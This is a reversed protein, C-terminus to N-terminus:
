RSHNSDRGSSLKALLAENLGAGDVVTFRGASPNDTGTQASEVVGALAKEPSHGIRAAAKGTEAAEVLMTGIDDDIGGAEGVLRGNFKLVTAPATVWDAVPATLPSASNGPEISQTKNLPASPQIPLRKWWQEDALNAHPLAAPVALGEWESILAEDTTPEVFFTNLNDQYFFPLTRLRFEQIPDDLLDNCTALAFRNGPLDSNTGELGKNLITEAVPNGSRKLPAAGGYRSASRFIQDYPIDIRDYRGTSIEPDSNKSVVKFTYRRQDADTLNINVAHEFGATDYEKSVDVFLQTPTVGVLLPKAASSSQRPTWEGQFYESWNLRAENTYRAVGATTSLLKNFTFESIKDDGPGSVRDAPNSKEIFTVWFLHLRKRWIVPVVHDGEIDVTIPEWPTWMGSAYRRHFYKHPSGFTRGIAHFISSSPNPKEECMAVIDLRAISELEKLYTFLADAVTDDNIDSQLLASELGQFMRTKDDRFEPELWNEPYLFIKRAAEWVRYRKMWAWQDSDIVSPPVDSELNLLCRQVFTQISSIALVIRSTQVVPEMGGDLLFYEFLQEISDFGRATMVYATLADRKRRRLADFIPQAIRLWNEPEYSAKVANRFDQAIDFRSKAPSDTVITTAESITEVPIGLQATVLLGDWLRLVGKENMFAPVTVILATGNDTATATFGLRNAMAKVTAADRRTRDAIRGCVDDFVAAKSSASDAARPYSRRSRSFVDILDDTSGATDKKLRAYSALRLFCTFLKRATSDDAHTTPLESFSLDDFDAPNASFYEIERQSLGFAGTLRLVKKLLALAQQVRDASSSPYRTLRAVSGKPLREGQVLLSFNGKTLGAVDVSIAYPVGAKLEIHASSELNTALAKGSLLADPSDGIRVEFALGAATSVAFFNYTGAAPVEIYGSFHASDAGHPKAPSGDPALAATNADAVTIVTPSADFSVSLGTNGGSTFADLLAAGTVSPDTLVRTLLTELLRPDGGVNAAVTQIVSRAILKQQLGPIFATILKARKARIIDRVASDGLGSPVPSFILNFDDATLFGTAAGGRVSKLLHDNFFSLVKSRIDDILGGFLTSTHAAKLDRVQEDLLVGRFSLRQVSAAYGVRIESDSAFELPDLRDAEAVGQRSAQYEITGALMSMFTDALDGTMLQALIPKLMEDTFNIPDAPASTDSKIRNIEAFLTKLLALTDNLNSRYKGVPDFVNHLLYQLDEISFGAAEIELATEVFRITQNFAYDSGMADKTPDPDLPRVLDKFPDLGSLDILAALDKVSLSLSKALFGYRHLLSVNELTLVSLDAIKEHARIATVDDASLNFAGLVTTLHANLSPAPRKGLYNGTPDDFIPDSKLVGQNLLLQDYLPSAGITSINSWLSLLKRRAEARLHLLDELTKFHALYVLATKFATGLTTDSLTSRDPLFSQLARDTDDISWGLKRWLRVFLNLRLLDFPAAGDGDAHRLTTSNFNCDLKTNALLLVPKFSNKQASDNIWTKADFATAFRTLDDLRANFTTLEDASLSPVRSAATDGYYRLVDIAEVGLKKLIVWSDIAPNVFSTQVLQSLEKYSVSLRRALTRASKLGAAAVAADSYGYLQFWNTLPNPDVFLGYESPSIGLIEAFTSSRYYKTDHEPRFLRDTQRFVELVRSFRTSSHDCFSRVTELSLDFPLAMAIRSSNLKDYAQAIVNQPEALLEATTVDGTNHAAQEGIKDNATFYELIENVVDIYPLATNTNECTLAIFPLDGRREVLADYPKKGTYAAGNHHVAWDALFKNWATDDPDLFQLLDVLYAAPSLVSRCHECECFDLSGFLTEMTPYQKILADM